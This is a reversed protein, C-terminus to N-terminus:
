EEEQKPKDEGEEGEPKEEGEASEGEEGEVPEDELAKQPASIYVVPISLNEDDWLEVREPLKIDALTVSDGINALQEVSVVIESPLDAPLCHVTIEDIENVLLGVNNKVAPSTGTLVVPIDATIPKTMDVQYLSVNLIEGSLPDYQMEKVLVRGAGKDDITLDILNSFGVKDFLKTFAKREISVNVPEIKPGYVSAPIGGQARVERAKRGTQQRTTVNLKM